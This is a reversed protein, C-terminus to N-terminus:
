GEEAWKFKRWLYPDGKKGSGIKEVLRKDQLEFLRRRVTSNPLEISEALDDSKTYEENLHDLILHRETEAENESVSGLFEIKQRSLRIAYPESPPVRGVITLKGPEKPNPCSWTCIVDPAALWESSGALDLAEGTGSKRFHHIVIIAWGTKRAIVQLKRLINGVTGAQNETDGALMFAARFSDIVCVGPLEEQILLLELWNLDFPVPLYNIIKANARLPSDASVVKVLERIDDEAMEFNLHIAPVAVTNNIFQLGQSLANLLHIILTTKGQKGHGGLVALWGHGLIDKIIWPYKESPQNVFEEWTLVKPSTHDSFNTEAVGIRLSKEPPISNRKDHEHQSIIKDEDLVLIRKGSVEQKTLDAHIQNIDADTLQETNQKQNYDEVKIIEKEM